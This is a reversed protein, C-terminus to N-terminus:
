PWLSARALCTSHVTCGDNRILKSKPDTKTSAKITHINHVYMNARARTHTHTHIHTHPPPPLAHVKSVSM